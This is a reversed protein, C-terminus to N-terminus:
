ALTRHVNDLDSRCLSSFGLLPDPDLGKALAETALQRFDIGPQLLIDVIAKMVTEAGGIVEPPAFLRMRNILGFLRQEEGNLAIEDQVRATLFMNSASMVFEAYVTERKAIETAVRQLRNQFRQTYIAALLSAGGGVLAGLLAFVPSLQTSDLQLVGEAGM